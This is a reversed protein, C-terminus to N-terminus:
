IGEIELAVPYHDSLYIGNLVDTWMEVRHEKGATDTDAYIYDIRYPPEKKGFNHFTIDCDKTLEVIPFAKYEDCFDIPESGPLDNFDGLMFMPLRASQADKCIRELVQNIGLIRAQAGIHDLHVNYVYFPEDVGKMRLTLAQCIRPCDSQEEFRSGPVNPTPSLWFCDQGLTEVSARRVATALGEGRRNAYRGNYILHYEPMHRDLFEAIREAVEQFCIVDPMEKDIKDLMMGVRHIFSNVGDGNWAGRVNYTVIKM